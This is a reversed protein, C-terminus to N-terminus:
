KFGACLPGDSAPRDASVHAHEALTAFFATCREGFGCEGHQFGPKPFRLTTVAVHEKGAGLTFTEADVAHLVQQGLM